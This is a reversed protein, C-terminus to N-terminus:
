PKLESRTWGDDSACHCKGVILRSVTPYCSRACETAHRQGYEGLKAAGWILLGFAIFAVGGARLGVKVNDSM